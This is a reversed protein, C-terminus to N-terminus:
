ELLPRLRAAIEEPALDPTAFDAALRRDPDLAFFYSSHDISYSTLKPDQYRVYSYHLQRAATRIEDESGTLALLRPDISAVYPGLVDPTDREPDITIFIPQVRAALPGLLDLVRSLDLLSAPCIDPCYTYGFYVLLWRAPLDAATVSRGDLSALSFAVGSIGDDAARAPSAALVGAAVALGWVVGSLTMGWRGDGAIRVIALM